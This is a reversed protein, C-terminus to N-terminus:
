PVYRAIVTLPDPSANASAPPTLTHDIRFGFRDLLGHLSALSYERAAHILHANGGAHPLRTTSGTEIFLTGDMRCYHATLALIHEPKAEVELVGCLLLTDFSGAPWVGEQFPPIRWADRPVRGVAAAEARWGRTHAMEIFRRSRSGIELLTSREGYQELLELRRLYAQESEEVDTRQALWAPSVPADQYIYQCQRCRFIQRPRPSPYARLLEQESSACIPCQSVVLM